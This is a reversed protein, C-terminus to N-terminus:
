KGGMEYPEYVRPKSYLGFITIKDRVAMHYRGLDDLPRGDLDLLKAEIIVEYGLLRYLIRQWRSRSPPLMTIQVECPINVQGILRKAERTLINM